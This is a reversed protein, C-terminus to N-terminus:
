RGTLTIVLKPKYVLFIPQGNSPKSIANRQHRTQFILRKDLLWLKGWDAMEYAKNLALIQGLTGSGQTLAQKVEEEIPMEKVISDLSQDLLSDLVSFM